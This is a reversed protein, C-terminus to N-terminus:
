EGKSGTKLNLQNRWLTNLSQLKKATIEADKTLNADIKPALTKAEIVALGISDYNSANQM